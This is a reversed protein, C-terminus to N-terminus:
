LVTVFLYFRAEFAKFFQLCNVKKDPDYGKQRSATEYASVSAFGLPKM